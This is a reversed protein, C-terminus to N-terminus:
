KKKMEIIKEKEKIENKEKKNINIFKIKEPPLKPIEFNDIPSFLFVRDKEIM